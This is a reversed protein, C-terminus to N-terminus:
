KLIKTRYNVDGSPAYIRETSYEEDTAKNKLLNFKLVVM